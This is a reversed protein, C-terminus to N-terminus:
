LCGKSIIKCAKLFSIMRVRAISSGGKWKIIPQNRFNYKVIITRYEISVFFYAVLEDWLHCSFLDM